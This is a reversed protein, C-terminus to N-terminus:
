AASSCDNTVEQQGDMMATPAYEDSHCLARQGHRYYPMWGQEGSQLFNIHLDQGLARSLKLLTRLTLNPNGNLLKTVFQRSVGLRAALQNRNITQEDMLVTVRETLNLILGELDYEFLDAQKEHWEDFYSRNTM